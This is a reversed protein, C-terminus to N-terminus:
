SSFSAIRWAGDEARRFTVRWEKLTWGPLEAVVAGAADMATAAPSTSRSQIAVRIVGDRVDQQPDPCCSFATIEGLFSTAVIRRGQDALQEMLEKRATYADSGPDLILGLVEADTTPHADLWVLYRDIDGWVRILEDFTEAQLNVAPPPADPHTLDLAEVEVTTTTTTSSPAATPPEAAPGAPATTVSAVPQATTPPAPTQVAPGASCAAALMAGLVIVGSRM